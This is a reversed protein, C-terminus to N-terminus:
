SEETIDYDIGPYSDRFWAEAEKQCSSRVELDCVEGDVEFTFCYTFFPEFDGCTQTPKRYGWDHITCYGVSLVGGNCRWNYCNECIRDKM